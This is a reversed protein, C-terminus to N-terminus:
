GQGAGKVLAQALEAPCKAFHLWLAPFQSGAPAAPRHTPPALLRGSSQQSRPAPSTHGPIGSPASPGPPSSLPRPGVM